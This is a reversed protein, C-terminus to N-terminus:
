NDGQILEVQELSYPFTRGIAEKMGSDTIEVIVPFRGGSYIGSTSKNIAVVVGKHSTHRIKCKSGVMITAQLIQEQTPMDNECQLSDKLAVITEPKSGNTAAQFLVSATFSDMSM